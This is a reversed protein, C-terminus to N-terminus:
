VVARMDLDLNFRQTIPNYQPVADKTLWCYGVDEPYSDPQLALFFPLTKSAAAFPVMNAKFWSQTFHAFELHTESYVSRLIRGVFNGAESMGNVINAKTGIKIPINTIDVKVSRELTLIQGVSCVACEAVDPSVLVELVISVVQRTDFHFIIPSNDTPTTSMILILPDPSGGATYYLNCVNGVFNHKAVAFYNVSGPTNLISPPVLVTIYVTGGTNASWKLHTAPNAMNTAPFETFESSASINGSEVVNDWAIVPLNKNADTIFPPSTSERVIM